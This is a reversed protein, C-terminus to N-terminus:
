NSVERSMVDPRNKELAWLGYRRLADLTVILLVLIQAVIWADQLAFFPNADTVRAMYTFWVGFIQNVCCGSTFVMALSEISHLGRQMRELNLYEAESFYRNRKLSLTKVITKGFVVFGLIVLWVAGVFYLRSFYDLRMLLSWPNWIASVM